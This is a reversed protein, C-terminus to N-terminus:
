PTKSHTPHATQPPVSVPHCDRDPSTSDRRSTGNALGHEGLNPIEIASGGTTSENPILADAGLPATNYLLAASTLVIVLTLRFTSGIPRLRFLARQRTARM